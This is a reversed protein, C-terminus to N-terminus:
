VWRLSRNNNCDDHNDGGNCVSNTGHDDDGCHSDHQLVAAVNFSNLLVMGANGVCRASVSRCIVSYMCM